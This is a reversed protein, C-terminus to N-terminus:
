VIDCSIRDTLDKDKSSTYEEILPFRRKTQKMIAVIGVKNETIM